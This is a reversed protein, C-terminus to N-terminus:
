VPSLCSVWGRDLDVENIGVIRYTVEEQNSKRATVIAGFAARNWPRSPPPIIQASGLVESIERIRHDIRRLPGNNEEAGARQLAPRDETILRDLERRLRDTGDPTLYNPTGAPLIAAQKAPLSLDLEDDSERTFAKSM